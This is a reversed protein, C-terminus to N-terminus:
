LKVLRSQHKRVADEKNPRPIAQRVNSEESGVPLEIPDKRYGSESISIKAASM